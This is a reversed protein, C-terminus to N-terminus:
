ATHLVIFARKLININWFDAIPNTNLGFNKCTLRKKEEKLQCLNTKVHICFILLGAYEMKGAIITLLHKKEKYEKKKREFTSTMRQSVLGLITTYFPSFVNAKYKTSIYNCLSM